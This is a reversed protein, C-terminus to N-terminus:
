QGGRVAEGATQAAEEPTARASLVDALAQALPGGVVAAVEPNAAPYAQTLLERIFPTYADTQDWADLAAQRTPLRGAAQTWAGSNEPSLLHEILAAALRQREPDPTVIALAWGHGVTAVGPESLPLTSFASSSSGAREAIYLSAPVQVLGAEGIRYTAWATTADALDLVSRPIVGAQRAKQFFGLAQTLREVDLTPQSADDTLRGGLALYQILIVDNVQNAPAASAFVFPVTSSYVDEWTLPPEEVTTADYVLHDLDSQYLVGITEGGVRTLARVFDFQDDLVESSVVDDLPQLLGAKAARYLDTDSLAIVDPLVSPAATSATTLFDLLGGTGSRKKLTVEVGAKYSEQFAQIQELLRMGGETESTPAFDESTWLVLTIPGGEEPTGTAVGGDPASTGPPTGIATSRVTGEPSPAV